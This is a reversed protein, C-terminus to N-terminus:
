NMYLVDKRIQINIDFVEVQANFVSILSIILDSNIGGISNFLIFYTNLTGGDSRVLFSHFFEFQFLHPFGRVSCDSVNQISSDESFRDNRLVYRSKYWSPSLGNNNASVSM